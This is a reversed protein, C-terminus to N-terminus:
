CDPAPLWPLPGGGVLEDLRDVLGELAVFAREIPEPGAMDVGALLLVDLPYLSGGAQLAARYRAAAPAGVTLIGDVLANAATIGATYQWVYFNMYLHPFRAWVSGVRARDAEDMVVAGGYGEEFLEIIAASMADATLADGREVRAHIDQEFRALIPMLFLYRYFNSMGEEIVAIQFRRDGGRTLLHARLLAQNLNSATEGVFSSYDRYIPPQHGYTYRKHMAHGLEHALTSLSLLSDTYNQMIFPHTGPVGTCFAGSGKGVTPYKDVWREVTLGRRAVTVYEEGLPALADLLTEVGRTYPIPQAAVALPVRTDFPRLEAVGLARRRVDWYRRWLPLRGRVTAILTDFVSTPLNYPQLRAERASAYRHARAYFVNGKVGGALTAALTNRVGLYGDAYARWAARRVSRVPNTTLGGSNGQALAVEAGHEDRVTGFRLDADALAQYIQRPGSTLDLAQALAEEVEASGHTAACATWGISTTAIAPM